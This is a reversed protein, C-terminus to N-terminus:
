NESSYDGFLRSNCLECLFKSVKEIELSTNLKRDLNENETKLGEKTEKQKVIENKLNEIQDELKKAEQSIEKQRLMSQDFEKRLKELEDDKKQSKAQEENLRIALEDERKKYEKEAELMKGELEEAIKAKERREEEVKEYNERAIELNDNIGALEERLEARIEKKILEVECNECIRTEEAQDPLMKKSSHKGCVSNACFRCHHRAGLGFKKQCIFCKNDLKWESSAKDKLGLPASPLISALSSTSTFSESNQM